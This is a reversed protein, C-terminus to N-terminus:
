YLLIYLFTFHTLDIGEVLYISWVNGFLLKCAYNSLVDIILCCVETFDICMPNCALGPFLFNVWPSM